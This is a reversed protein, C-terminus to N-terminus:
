EPARGPLASSPIGWVRPLPPTAGARHIWAGRPVPRPRRWSAPFRVSFKTKGPKETCLKVIPSAPIWDSCLRSQDPCLWSPPPRYRDPCLCWAPFMRWEPKGPVAVQPAPRPANTESGATMGKNGSRDHRIPLLCSAGRPPAAPNRRPRRRARALIVPAPAGPQTPWTTARGHHLRDGRWAEAM